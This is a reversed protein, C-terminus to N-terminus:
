SKARPGRTPWRQELSFFKAKLFKKKTIQKTISLTILREYVLVKGNGKQIFLSNMQKLYMLTKDNIKQKQHKKEV